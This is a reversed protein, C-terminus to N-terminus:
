ILKSYLGLAGKEKYEQPTIWFEKRRSTSLDAWISGGIWTLYIREPNAIINVDMPKYIKKQIEMRLREKLTPFLSTGGTLIIKKFLDSQVETKCESIVEIIIEELPDSKYGIMQPKFICEPAIFREENIKITEGNPLTYNKIIYEAKESIQKEREPYLAIFCYNEKINNVINWELFPDFKNGNKILIKKLHNSIENGNIDFRRIKNPIPFGEEILDITSNGGGLNVVCGTTLGAAFLSAISQRYFYIAPVNFQEFMIEVIKERYNMPLISPESLFIPHLEPDIRLLEYFIYKWIKKMGNWDKIIGNKIPYEFNLVSEMQSTELGVYYDGYRPKYASKIIEFRSKGIRTPFSYRPQDEGAYGIYTNVSGNDIVIIKNELFNDKNSM